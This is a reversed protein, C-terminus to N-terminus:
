LFLRGLNGIVLAFTCIVTIYFLGLMLVDFLPATDNDPPTDADALDREARELLKNEYSRYAPHSTPIMRYRKTPPTYDTNGNDM